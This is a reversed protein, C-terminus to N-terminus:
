QKNFLPTLGPKILAMIQTTLMEASFKREGWSWQLAAGFIAWSTAMAIPEASDKTKASRLWDLLMHYIYPQLQREIPPHDQGHCPGYRDTFHALFECTALTLLQLNEESFTECSAMRVDLMKQFSDTIMYELLDFKDEFHAYFTGRHIIAEDAIQQVTIQTFTKHKLLSFMAAVLDRRTRVVRPDLKKEPTTSQM